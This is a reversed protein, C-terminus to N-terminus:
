QSINPCMIQCTLRHQLWGHESEQPWQTHGKGTGRRQLILFSLSTILSGLSLAWWLPLLGRCSDSIRYEDTMAESDTSPSHCFRKRFFKILSAPETKTEAHLIKRTACPSGLQPVWTWITHGWNSRSRHSRLERVLFQARTGQRALHSRLWQVVMSTRQTMIKYSLYRLRNSWSSLWPGNTWAKGPSIFLM